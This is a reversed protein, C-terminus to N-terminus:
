SRGDHLARLVTEAVQLRTADRNQSASGLIREAVQATCGNTEMLAGVAREIAAAEALDRYLAAARDELDSADLHVRVGAGILQAYSDAAVLIRGAWPDAARSYLNLALTIGRDVRAPVAVAAVFGEQLAQRCWPEWRRETGVDPVVQIMLLEMAAVCPGDDALAEIEDCRAAADTSSAARLTSGRRRVTISAEADTGLVTSAHSAYEQLFSSIGV